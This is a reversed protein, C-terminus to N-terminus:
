RVGGSGVLRGHAVEVVRDPTVAPPPDVATTLLTQGPPMQEVLATARHHDLESFVDDLLLIPPEDHQACALQHAALRLALAVSRQEGQSAQSRAPRGEVTVELEDRHPGVTTVQRRVDDRRAEALARDLTGEWSRRYGLVIDRNGTGALRRYADAVLPGLTAALEERAAALEEGAAALRADWVDLSADIAEPGARSAQRLLAGRQRLIREVEDHLSEFRPHGGVLVEDLYDRRHAPGDQVLALDDPSFVSVRVAQGLDVRRRVAQRNVQTRATGQAPLEAEILVARAGSTAEARVIARPAGTRVIAERPAGRFSRMTALWGVAELLSTKGAGNEGRLVTLGALDPEFVTAEFCRFDTLWLSTIAM